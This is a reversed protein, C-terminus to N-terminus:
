SLKGAADQYRELLSSGEEGPSVLAFAIAELVLPEDPEHHGIWCRMGEELELPRTRAAWESARDRLGHMRNVRKWREQESEM